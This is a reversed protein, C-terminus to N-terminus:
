LGISRFYGSIRRATIINWILLVALVVLAIIVYITIQENYYDKVNRIERDIRNDLIMYKRDVELKTIIDKNTETQIIPKATELVKVRDNLSDIGNRYVALIPLIGLLQRRSWFDPYADSVGWKGGCGAGKYVSYIVKGQTKNEIVVVSDNTDVGFYGQWGPSSAGSYTGNPVSQRVAQSVAQGIGNAVITSLPVGNIFVNPNAGFLQIWADPNDGWIDIIVDLGDASVPNSFTLLSIVVMLVILFYKM